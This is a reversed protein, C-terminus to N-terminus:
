RSAARGAKATELILVWDHNTGPGPTEWNGDADPKVEGIPHTEGTVPDFASATYATGRGLRHVQAPGPKPLYIIRVRDPIGAAYPVEFDTKAATPPSGAWPGGGFPALVKAPSWKADDFEATRWGKAEEQAVRWSADSVLKLSTGDHLQADLAAILGAPNKTVDSHVNEAHVAIVNRGPKLLRELAPYANHQNWDAGSGVEEGNLWVIYRDDATIRLSAHEVPNDAPVDFTRRFFRPAIPADVAPDGEPFWIWNSQRIGDETSPPATGVWEPHPEFHEWEYKELLRKAFGVQTSGPLKMSEDWPIPGYTGGHPSKGYPQEKRNMQWIGNAGYTHGAAGSLLCVWCMMRPVEAPIVGSLAEYTVEANIVPMPPQADYSARFATVTPALVERMGHGTQLMDFDLLTDDKFVLRASLPPIGTPHATVLRGFPNVTRLYRTVEAWGQAQKEGGMPFGPELYYPLNFEGAVCWVVPMAGYRASLYRMHQKMKDIGLWPLHFGWSGVICPVIGQDVLYKIREDALDFYEPRIRSYDKEWAFGSENASREDFAGQDPYLGGVIQIVNFGKAKRDATLLQFEDPWHLRKCLGMWWTDGLWLFPTGDAHQFHRKDPAVRIPGHLYLPNDGQYPTVQVAGDVGNLGTDKPDSCETHFTHKGPLPSAYRVKWVNGGAWFAPVRFTQGHPDTFVADLTLEDFPDHHPLAAEFRAEIVENARGVTEHQGDALGARAFALAILLSLLVRQM